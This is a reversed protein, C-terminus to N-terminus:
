SGNTYPDNDLRPTYRVARTSGSRVGEGRGGVDMALRTQLAQGCLLQPQADTRPIPSPCRPDTPGEHTDPCSDPCRRCLALGCGGSGAAPSKPAPQVRTMVREARDPTPPIPTPDPAGLAGGSGTPSPQQLTRGPNPPRTTQRPVRPAIPRQCADRPSADVPYKFTSASPALTNSADPLCLRFGTLFSRRFRFPLSPLLLFGFHTRAALATAPRRITRCGPWVATTSHRRM